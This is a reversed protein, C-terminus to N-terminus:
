SLLNVPVVILLIGATNLIYTLVAIQPYTLKSVGLLMLGLEDPLPSAVIIAGILPTVFELKFKILFNNVKKLQLECSVLNIDKSLKEKFFKIIVLDGFAAGLGALLATLIPNNVDALVLLMAISIPATLFSVYFIGALFEALFKLPLVTEVLNNLYGGRILWWALSLSFAFIATKFILKRLRVDM